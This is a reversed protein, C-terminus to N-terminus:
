AWHAQQAMAEGSPSALIPGDRHLLREFSGQDIAHERGLLELRDFVPRSRASARVAMAM